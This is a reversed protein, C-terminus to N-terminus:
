VREQIIESEGASEPLLGYRNTHHSSKLFIMLHLFPVSFCESLMNASENKTRWGEEAHQFVMLTVDHYQPVAPFCGKSASSTVKFDNDFM